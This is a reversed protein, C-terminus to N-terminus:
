SQLCLISNSFTQTLIHKRATNRLIGDDLSYTSEPKERQQNNSTNAIIFQNTTHLIFPLHRSHSPNIEIVTVFTLPSPGTNHQRVRKSCRIKQRYFVLSNKAKALIHAPALLARPLILAIQNTFHCLVLTTPALLLQPSTQQPWPTASPPQLPQHIPM